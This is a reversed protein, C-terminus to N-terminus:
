SASATEIRQIIQDWYRRLEDSPASQARNRAYDLAWLLEESDREAIARRVREADTEKKM